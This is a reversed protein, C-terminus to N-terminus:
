ELAAWVVGSPRITTEPQGLAVAVVQTLVVMEAEQRQRQMPPLGRQGRTLHTQIEPRNLLRVPTVQFLHVAVAQEAKVPPVQFLLPTRGQLDVAVGIIRAPIISIYATLFPKSVTVEMLEAPPPERIQTLKEMLALVRVAVGMAHRATSQGMEAPTEVM